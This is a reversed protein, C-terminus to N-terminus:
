LLYMARLTGMLPVVSGNASYGDYYIVEKYMKKFMDLKKVKTHSSGNVTQTSVAANRRILQHLLLKVKAIVDRALSGMAEDGTSSERAFALNFAEYTNLLFLLAHEMDEVRGGMAYLDALEQHILVFTQGVEAKGFYDLAKEYHRRAIEMRNKLTSSTSTADSRDASSAAAYETQLERAISRNYFSAVQYHTSAVQKADSLENYLILAKDFIKLVENERAKDVARAPADLAADNKRGTHGAPAQDASIDVAWVLYTLALEGKVKDRLELEAKTQKLRQLADSCLQIATRYHKERSARDKGRALIKHLHSM